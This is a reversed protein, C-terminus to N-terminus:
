HGGVNVGSAAVLLVAAAALTILAYARDGKRVYLPLVALYAVLPLGVLMAIGIFNMFDGFRVLRLWGWGAPVRAQVLFEDAHMGWYRPLESIPIHPEAVGSLYLAFAVLLVTLSVETGVEVIRAFRAQEPSPEVSVQSTALGSRLAM